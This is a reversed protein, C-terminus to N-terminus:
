VCLGRLYDSDHDRRGAGVMRGGLRARLAEVEPGTVALPACAAAEMVLAVDRAECGWVPHLAMVGADGGFSARDGTDLYSEVALGEALVVDHAELEVHFYEVRAMPVQAVSTGNILHKVPVLVEEAYVAHDPSLFM